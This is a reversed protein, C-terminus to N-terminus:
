ETVERLQNMIYALFIIWYIQTRQEMSRFAIFDRNPTIKQQEIELQM